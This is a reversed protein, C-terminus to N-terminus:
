PVTELSRCCDSHQPLERSTTGPAIKLVLEEALM